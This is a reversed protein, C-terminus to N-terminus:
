RMRRARLIGYGTLTSVTFNAQTVLFITTTGSLKIQLPGVLANMTGGSGPVFGVNRINNVAGLTTSDLTGTTQSISAIQVTVNTTAGPIYYINGFVDWDGATLSISTINVATGTTLSIASGAVVTASIVEGIEGAVPSGNSPEGSYHGPSVTSGNISTATAAGLVPTVLTPTTAFVANGTGTKTTLASLLNASSPTTLFTAVGAGLNAVSAVPYATCNTLNGSTPTGLLPTVLTPSTSYVLNGTGTEDSIVGALQASTTSAFQSLDTGKYAITGGAGYTLTSADTGTLAVTNNATLSKGDAITLTSGTAPTTLTYKNVTTFAPTLITSVTAPSTGTVAINTGAAVTNSDSTWKVDYNTNSNKVLADGTNGGSPLSSVTGGGIFSNLDQLRLPESVTVPAPLNLIRQNNLDVASTIQNPSTGDRSLTNDMATQITSFNNNITTAATVADILNGVSSLTIKSM